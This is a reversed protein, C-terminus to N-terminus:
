VIYEVEGLDVYVSLNNGIIGIKTEFLFLNDVNTITDLKEKTKSHYIAALKISHYINDKSKVSFEIILKKKCKYSIFSNSIFEYHEASCGSICKLIISNYISFYGYHETEKKNYLYETIFKEFNYM